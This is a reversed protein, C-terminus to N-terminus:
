QSIETVLRIVCENSSITMYPIPSTAGPYFRLISDSTATWYCGQQQYHFGTEPNRYGTVPLFVCGDPITTSGSILGGSYGDPFILLGSINDITTMQYLHSGSRHSSPSGINLLYKWEDATLLRWHNPGGNSIQSPISNKDSNNFYFSQSNQVLSQSEAFQYTSGSRQLLGQSFYVKKTPSVSFESLIVGQFNEPSYENALSIQFPVRALNNRCINGAYDNQQTMTYHYNISGIHAFVRISFKNNVNTPVAPVSVYLTTNQNYPLSINLGAQQGNVKRALVVASQMDNFPISFYPDASNANNIIASGWLSVSQNASSVRVSDIILNDRDSKDNTITIGLLAGLNKFYLTSNNGSCFAYMPSQIVQKGDKQYYPQLRPITLSIDTGSMSEVISYPYVAVYMNAIPVEVSPNNTQAISVLSNNVMMSDGNAFMPTASNDGGMYVKANNNYNDIRVKLTKTDKQCGVFSIISVIFVILSKTYINQRM